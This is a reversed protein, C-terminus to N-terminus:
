YDSARFGYFLIKGSLGSLEKAMTSIESEQAKQIYIEWPVVLLAM